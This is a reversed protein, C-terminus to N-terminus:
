KNEKANRTNLIIGAIFLAIYGFFFICEIGVFIIGLAESWFWHNARSISMRSWDLMLIFETGILLLVSKVYQNWLRRFVARQYLLGVLLLMIGLVINVELAFARNNNTFAGTSVNIMSVLINFGIAIFSAIILRTVMPYKANKDYPVSKITHKSKNANGAQTAPTVSGFRERPNTPVPQAQNPPTVFNYATPAPTFSVSSVSVNESSQKPVPAPNPTPVVPVEQIKKEGPKSDPTMADLKIRMKTNLADLLAQKLEAVSQYREAPAFAMGKMLVDSIEKSCKPEIECPPKLNDGITRDTAETPTQGTICRYMTACLAYVDTWPGQNGRTQYQEIPAYGYKLVVSLSKNGNAVERAAGFDLLKGVGDETIMINDPSIDRHILNKEHVKSLSNLVPGIIGITEDTTLKGKNKLYEKLTIGEIYEMIIYATNNENFYRLVTVIGSEKFFSALVRAENIFKERHVEFLEQEEGATSYIESSVTTNRNSHGSLFFEKIAIKMELDHDWGMYTIGFGGEGILRGVHYNGALVTGVQLCHPPNQASANDYGCKSCKAGESEILDTCGACRYKGNILM